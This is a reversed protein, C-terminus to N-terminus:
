SRGAREDGAGDLTGVVVAGCATCELFLTTGGLGLWEVREPPHACAGNAGVTWATDAM